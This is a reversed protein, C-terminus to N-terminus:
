RGRGGHPWVRGSGLRELAFVLQAARELGGTDELRTQLHDAIADVLHAPDVLEAVIERLLDVPQVAEDAVRRVLWERCGGAVRTLM